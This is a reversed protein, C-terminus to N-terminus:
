DERADGAEPKATGRRKGRRRRRRARGPGISAEAPGRLDEQLLSILVALLARREDARSLSDNGDSGRAALRLVAATAGGEPGPANPRDDFPRPLTRRAAGLGASEAQHRLALPPPSKPRRRAEALAEDLLRFEESEPLKAAYGQSM